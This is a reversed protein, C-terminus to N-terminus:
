IESNVLVSKKSKYVLGTVSTEGFGSVGVCAAPGGPAVGERAVRAIGVTSGDVVAPVDDLVTGTCTRVGCEWRKM